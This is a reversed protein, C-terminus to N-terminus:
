LGPGPICYYLMCVLLTWHVKADNIIFILMDKQLINIQMIFSAIDITNNWFAYFNVLRKTGGQLALMDM